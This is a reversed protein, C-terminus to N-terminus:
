CVKIIEKILDKNKFVHSFPGHGTIILKNIILLILALRVKGLDHCLAALRVCTIHEPKLIEDGNDKNGNAEVMEGKLHEM